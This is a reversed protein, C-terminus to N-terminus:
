HHANPNIKTMKNVPPKLYTCLVNRSFISHFFFESDSIMVFALKNPFFSLLLSNSLSSIVPQRQSICAWQKGASCSCISLGRKLIGGNAGRLGAACITHVNKHRSYHMSETLSKTLTSSCIPFLVSHLIVNSIKCTANWVHLRYLNYDLFKTLFFILIFSFLFRVLLICFTRYLKFIHKIPWLASRVCVCM